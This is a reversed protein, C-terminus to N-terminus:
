LPVDRYIQHSNDRYKHETGIQEHGIEDDYKAERAPRVSVARRAFATSLPPKEIFYMEVHAIDKM